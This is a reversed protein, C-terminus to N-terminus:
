KSIGLKFKHDLQTFIKYLPCRAMGNNRCWQKNRKFQEKAYIELTDITHMFDRHQKELRASM